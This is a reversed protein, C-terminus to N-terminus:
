PTSEEAPFWAMLTVPTPQEGAENTWSVAVTVQDLGNNTPQRTVTVDANLLHSAAEPSITATADNAELLPDIALREMLNAAEQQAIFQQEAATRSTRVHKLLPLTVVFITGLLTAAVTLELM